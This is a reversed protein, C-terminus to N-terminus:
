DTSRLSTHRRYRVRAQEGHRCHKRERCLFAAVTQQELNAVRSPGLNTSMSTLTIRRCNDRASVRSCKQTQREVALWDRNLSYSSIGFDRYRCFSAIGHLVNSKRVDFTQALYTYDSFGKAQIIEGVTHTERCDELVLQALNDRDCRSEKESVLRLPSDLDSLESRL